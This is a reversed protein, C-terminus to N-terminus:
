RKFLVNVNRNDQCTGSSTRARGFGHGVKLTLILTIPGVLVTREQNYRRRSHSSAACLRPPTRLARRQAGQRDQEM